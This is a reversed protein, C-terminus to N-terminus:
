LHRLPCSPRAAPNFLLWASIATKLWSRSASTPHRSFHPAPSHPTLLPFTLLSSRSFSSHPAPSHPTWRFSPAHQLLRDVIASDPFAVPSSNSKKSQQQAARTRGRRVKTTRATSPSDDTQQRCNTKNQQKKRKKKERESTGTCTARPM